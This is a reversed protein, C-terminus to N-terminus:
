SMGPHWITLSALEVPRPTPSGRLPGFVVYQLLMGSLHPRCLQRVVSLIARSLRAFTSWLVLRQGRVVCSQFFWVGLIGDM